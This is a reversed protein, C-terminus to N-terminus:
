KTFYTLLQAEGSDKVSVFASIKTGDDLVREFIFTRGQGDLSRASSVLNGEKITKRASILYSEAELIQNNGNRIIERSGAIESFHKRTHYVAASETGFSIRDAIQRTKNALVSENMLGVREGPYLILRTEGTKGQWFRSEQHYATDIFRASKEGPIGINNDTGLEKILAASIQADTGIENNLRSTIRNKEKGIESGTASVNTKRWQELEQNIKAEKISIRENLLKRFQSIYFQYRNAFDYANGAERIAWNAGQQQLDPVGREGDLRPPQTKPLPEQVLAQNIRSREADTLGRFMPEGNLGLDHILDDASKRQFELRFNYDRKIANLRLRDSGSLADFARQDGGSAEIQRTIRVLDTLDADSMEALRSPHVTLQNNIQLLGDSTQKVDFAELSKSLNAIRTEQSIRLNSQEIYKVMPEAGYLNRLGGAQKYSYAFTGGWFAMQGIAFMRDAASLKDWNTALYHGTSAVAITDAYQSAVNLATITRLAGGSVAIGKNALNVARATAGLAAIGIINTGLGIWESRAQPDTLSLTQGHSYRDYLTSGSRGAGYAGVAVGGVILATGGSGAIVFGAIIIGGVMAAGDLYPRIREWNTDVVNPTNSSEFRVRGNSAETLHGNLPYTMKGAPLQNNAKWDEFSSYSREGDDVFYEKGDKGQVRFLPVEVIAKKIGSETPLDANLMVPLVTIRANDGGVDRILQEVKSIRAREEGKYFEWNGENFSIKEADTQPVNNPKIKLAMGIENVLSAGSLQRSEDGRLYLYKSFAANVFKDYNQEIFNLNKDTLSDAGGVNVTAEVQKPRTGNLLHTVDISATIKENAYEIPYFGPRPPIGELGPTFIETKSTGDANQTTVAIDLNYKSYVPPPNYPASIWGSKFSNTAVLSFKTGPPYKKSLEMIQSALRQDQDLLMWNNVDKPAIIKNTQLNAIRGMAELTVAQPQLYKDLGNQRGTGLISFAESYTRNYFSEEKQILNQTLPFNFTKTDPLSTQLTNIWDQQAQQAKQLNNAMIQPENAKPLSGNPSLLQELDLRRVQGDFTFLNKQLPALFDVVPKQPASVCPLLNENKAPSVEEKFFTKESFLSKIQDTM